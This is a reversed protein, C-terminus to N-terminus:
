KKRKKMIEAKALNLKTELVNSPNVSIFDIGINSLFEISEEKDLQNGYIGIDIKKNDKAKYLTLKILRGVASTDLEDFPNIEFISKEKYENIFEANNKDIGYTMETLMDLDILYFDSVYSIERSLMAARPTEITNGVIYNLKTDKEKLISTATFDIIKKVYDFEYPDTVFPVIIGPNVSIGKERINLAAMIIAKTQMKILEENSISLRIGKCGLLPNDEIMKKVKEIIMKASVDMSKSLEKIENEDKPLFSIIPEDLLRINVSKGDMLEFLKEFVSIQNLLLKDLVNLKKEKDDFLLYKRFNILSDKNLFMEETKFLGISERDDQISNLEEVNNIIYRVDINKYEDVYKFFKIIEENYLTEKINLKGKYVLGNNGDISLYEGSKIVTGDELKINNQKITINANCIFPLGNERAVNSAYSTKSDNISIMGNLKSINKLDEKTISEKVLIGKEEIDDIDFYIKNSTVGPVISIGKIIADKEKIDGEFCNNKIKKISSSKVLLIIDEKKIIKEKYLDLATKIGAECTRDGSLSSQIYIKSNLINFKVHVLDKYYKEIKKVNNILEEYIKLKEEKLISIDKLENEEYYDGYVEKKGTSPNRSYIDGEIFDDGDIKEEVIISSIEKNKSVVELVKFLQEKADQTFDEGSLKKYIKKYDNIIDLYNEESITEYKNYKEVFENKDFDEFKSSLFMILELYSNYINNKNSDIALVDDNIGITVLKENSFGNYINLFLANSSSGLKKKTKKELKSLASLIIKNNDDKMCNDNKVINIFEACIIFGKPTNFRLKTLECRNFGFEGLIEKKNKRGEKYFYVYKKKM